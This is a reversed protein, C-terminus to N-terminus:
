GSRGGLHVAGKQPPHTDPRLRHKHGPPYYVSTFLGFVKQVLRTCSCCWGTRMQTCMDPVYVCAVVQCEGVASLPQVNPPLDPHCSLTPGKTVAAHYGSGRDLLVCTHCKSRSLNRGQDVARNSILMGALLRRDKAAGGLFGRELFSEGGKLQKLFVVLGVSFSRVKQIYTGCQDTVLSLL